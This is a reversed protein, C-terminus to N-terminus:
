HLCCLEKLWRQAEGLYRKDMESQIIEPSESNESVGERGNM